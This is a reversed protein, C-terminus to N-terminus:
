VSLIVGDGRDLAAAIAPDERCPGFRELESTSMGLTLFPVYTRASGSEIAVFGAKQGEYFRELTKRLADRPVKPLGAVYVKDVLADQAWVEIEGRLSATMGKLGTFAAAVLAIAATSVGIRARGEAISRAALRGAMTAIRKLPKAIAHSIAG